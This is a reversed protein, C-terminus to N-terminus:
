RRSMQVEKSFLRNLEIINVSTTPNKKGRTNLKKNSNCIRSKIGTNHITPVPNRGDPICGSYQRKMSTGTEKSTCFKTSQQLVMQWGNPNSGTNCQFTGSHVWKKFDTDRSICTHVCAFEHTNRHTYIHTHWQLMKLVGPKVNFDKIWKLQNPPLYPYLKM